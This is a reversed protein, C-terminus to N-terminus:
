GRGTLLAPMVATMMIHARAAPQKIQHNHGSQSPQSPEALHIGVGAM